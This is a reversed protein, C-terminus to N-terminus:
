ADAEAERTYQADSEEFTKPISGIVARKLHAELESIRVWAGDSPGEIFFSYGDLARSGIDNFLDAPVQKFRLSPVVLRQQVRGWRWVIPITLTGRIILAVTARRRWIDNLLLLPEPRVMAMPMIHSVSGPCRMWLERVALRARERGAEICSVMGWPKM